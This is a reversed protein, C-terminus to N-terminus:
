DQGCFYYKGHELDIFGYQTNNYTIWIVKQEKGIEYTYLNYIEPSKRGACM